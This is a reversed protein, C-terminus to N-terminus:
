SLRSLSLPHDLILSPDVIKSPQIFVPFYGSFDERCFLIMFLYIFFVVVTVNTLKRNNSTKQMSGLTYM